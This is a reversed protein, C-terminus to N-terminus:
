NFGNPYEDLAVIPILKNFAPHEQLFESIQTYWSSNIFSIIHLRNM